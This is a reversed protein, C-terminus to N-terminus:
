HYYSEFKNSLKLSMQKVPLKVKQRGGLQQGLRRKGGFGFGSEDDESSDDDFHPRTTAEVAALKESHRGKAQPLSSLRKDREEKGTDDTSQETNNDEGALVFRGAYLSHERTTTGTVDRETTQEIMKSSDLLKTQYSSLENNDITALHGAAQFKVGFKELRAKKDAIKKESEMIEVGSRKRLASTIAANSVQDSTFCPSTSTTPNSKSHRYGMPKFSPTAM